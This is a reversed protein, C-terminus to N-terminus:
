ELLTWLVISPNEPCSMSGFGPVGVFAAFLVPYEGREM